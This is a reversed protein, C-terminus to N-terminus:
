TNRRIFARTVYKPLTSASGTDGITHTHANAATIGINATHSHGSSAPNSGSGATVNTSGGGSAGVSKNGGHNHAAISDTSPNTHTHTNAGGTARVEGDVGAGLVFKDRLDPTGNTGDCIVWGSPITLNEWAIITGIPFTKFSM